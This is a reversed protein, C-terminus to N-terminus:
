SAPIGRDIFWRYSEDPKMVQRSAPKRTIKMIADVIWSRRLTYPEFKERPLRLLQLPTAAVVRYPSVFGHLLGGLNILDAPFLSTTFSGAGDELSDDGQNPDAHMLFACGSLLMYATDQEEGAEILTQGADIEIKEFESALRHRDVDNVREFVDHRALVPETWYDLLLVDMAAAFSPDAHQEVTVVDRSIEFLEADQEAIVTAARRQQTFFGGEGVLVMGGQQPTMTAQEEYDEIEVLLSGSRLLWLHAPPDGVQCLMEGAALHKPIGLQCLRRILAQREMPPTNVGIHRIEPVAEAEERELAEVKAQELDEIKALLKEAAANEGANRYTTVVHRYSTVADTYDGSQEACYAHRLRIDVDAHMDEQQLVEAFLTKAESFARRSVAKRAARLKESIAHGTNM